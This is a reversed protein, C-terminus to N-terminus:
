ERTIMHKWVPRDGEEQIVMDKIVSGAFLVVIGPNGYLLRIFIMM